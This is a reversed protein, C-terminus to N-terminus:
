TKICMRAVEFNVFFIEIPLNVVEDTYMLTDLSNYM